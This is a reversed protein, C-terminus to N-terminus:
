RIFGGFWAGLLLVAVITRYTAFMGFGTRRLLGMLFRIALFGTVGSTVVGIALTSAPVGAFQGHHKILGTYLLAALTIPASLMFSFRAAATRSLGALRGATMTVGSRSVGPVLALSQALGVLLATGWGPARRDESRTVARDVLWLLLGFVLLTAAQLPVSRLQEEIESLVRGAVLGPITAVVLMGFQMRAVSRDDAGDVQPLSAPSGEPAIADRFMRVWDGWFALVLAALTGAHMAVDFAVGVYPWGLLTPVLYLHASSSIPLLETLGQVAGLVAAQLPTLVPDTVVTLPFM